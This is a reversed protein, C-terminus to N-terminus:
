AFITELERKLQEAGRSGVLRGIEKGDRLVLITPISMVGFEEAVKPSSDVNLKAFKARGNFEPATQAFIPGLTTCPGCWAAWFDIVSIGDRTYTDFNQESLEIM